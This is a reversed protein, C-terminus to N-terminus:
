LEGQPEPVRNPVAGRRAKQSQRAIRQRCRLDRDFLGRSEGGVAKDILQNISVGDQQAVDRAQQNLSALRLSLTNM